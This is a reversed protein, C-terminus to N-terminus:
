IEVQDRGKETRSKNYSNFRSMLSVFTNSPRKEDEVPIRLTKDNDAVLFAGGRNREIHFTGVGELTRHNNTAREKLFQRFSIM